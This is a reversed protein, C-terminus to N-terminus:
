VKTYCSLLPLLMVLKLFSVCTGVPRCNSPYQKMNCYQVITKFISGCYVHNDLFCLKGQANNCETVQPLKSPKKGKTNIITRNDMLYQTRICVFM